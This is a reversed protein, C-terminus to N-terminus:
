EIGFEEKYMEWFKAVLKKVFERSQEEAKKAEEPFHKRLEDYPLTM